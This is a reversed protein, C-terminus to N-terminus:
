RGLLTGLALGNVLRYPLCRRSLLFYMIVLMLLGIATLLILLRGVPLHRLRLAIGICCLPEGCIDYGLLSELDAAAFSLAPRSLRPRAPAAHDRILSGRPWLPPGPFIM